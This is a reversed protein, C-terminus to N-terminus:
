KCFIILAVIILMKNNNHIKQTMTLIKKVKQQTFKTILNIKKRKSKIKNTKM